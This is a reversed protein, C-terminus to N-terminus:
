MITIIRNYRRRRFFVRMKNRITILGVLITSINGNKTRNYYDNM